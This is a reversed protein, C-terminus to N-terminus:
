KENEALRGIVVFEGEIMAMVVIDGVKLRQLNQPTNVRHSHSYKGDTSTIAFINNLMMYDLIKYDNILGKKYQSTSIGQEKVEGLFLGLGRTAGFAANDAREQISRVANTFRTM